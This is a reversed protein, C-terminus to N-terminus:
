VVETAAARPALGGEPQKQKKAVKAKVAVRDELTWYCGKRAARSLAINKGTLVPPRATFVLAVVLIDEL